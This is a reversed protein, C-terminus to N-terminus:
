RPPLLLSPRRPWTPSNAPDSTLSPSAPRFSRVLWNKEDFAMTKMRHLDLVAGESFVLGHTSAGNGRV